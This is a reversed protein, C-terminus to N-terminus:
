LAMEGGFLILTIITTTLLSGVIWKLQRDTLDQDEGEYKQTNNPMINNM